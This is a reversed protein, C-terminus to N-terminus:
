LELNVRCCTSIMKNCKFDLTGVVRGMGAITCFLSRSKKKEWVSIVCEGSNVRAISTLMESIWNILFQPRLESSDSCEKLKM